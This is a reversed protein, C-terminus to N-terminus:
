ATEFLNSVNELNRADTFQNEAFIQQRNGTTRGIEQCILTATWCICFSTNSLTADWWDLVCRFSRFTASRVCCTCHFYTSSGLFGRMMWSELARRYASSSKIKMPSRWLFPESIRAIEIRSLTCLFLRCVLLKRYRRDETQWRKHSTKINGSSPEPNEVFQFIDDEVQFPPSYSSLLSKGRVTISRQSRKGQEPTDASSNNDWPQAKDTFFDNSMNRQQCLSMNVMQILIRLLSLPSRNERKSIWVLSGEKGRHIIKGVYRDENLNAHIILLSRWRCSISLSCTSTCRKCALKPLHMVM